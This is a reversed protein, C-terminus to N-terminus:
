NGSSDDASSDDTAEEATSAGGGTEAAASTPDDDPQQTNPAPEAASTPPLIIPSERDPTRQLDDREPLSLDPDSPLDDYIQPAQISGGNNLIDTSPVPKQAFFWDYFKQTEPNVLVALRDAALEGIASSPWRDIITQYQKGAEDFQNMSEYVQALGMHARQKLMDSRAFRQAEQYDQVAQNLFELADARDIYMNRGGSASMIDGASQRAWAAAETGSYRNAVDRLRVFDNTQVAEFYDTWAAQQRGENRGRMIFVTFLGVVALVAVGVITKIYPQIAQVKDGLWDALENTQLEHRRETKM